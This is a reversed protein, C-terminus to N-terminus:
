KSRPGTPKPRENVEEAPAQEAAPEPTSRFFRLHIGNIAVVLILAGIVINGSWKRRLQTDPILRPELKALIMILIIPILWLFIGKFPLIGVISRLLAHISFGLVAFAFVCAFTLSFGRLAKYLNRFPLLNM